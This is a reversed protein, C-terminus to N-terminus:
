EHCSLLYSCQPLEGSPIKCDTVGTGANQEYCLNMHPFLSQEVQRLKHCYRTVAVYASQDVAAGHGALIHKINPGFKRM